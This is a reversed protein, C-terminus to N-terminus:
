RAARRQQNPMHLNAGIKKYVQRRSWFQNKLFNCRSDWFDFAVADTKGEAPRQIRGIEQQVAGQARKPAALFLRDLHPLDLGERALQTALLIDIQKSTARKMVETRSKKSMRGTLLEIRLEPLADKLMTQLTELHEVRESLVLSYHATAHQKVTDVILQNRSEDKTLADLLKSYEDEYSNFTTEIIEVSPIVTPVQSQEIQYLIPGGAAILMPTLGDRRVPTASMWLRYKAPFQNVVEFFQKGPMRHAEDIVLCGFRGVIDSLDRRSLTQVLGVTLRDGITFKGDGIYGIEEETMGLVQVARSRFQDALEKTHVLVLTPQQIYAVAALAMNTKGSGCPSVIGGQTARIFTKVPDKQYTRLDIRLDFHVPPLTLRQDIVHVQIGKLRERLQNGYGRHLIMKGHEYRYLAKFEPKGFTSRGQRVAEEYEPNRLTLDSEILRRIDEPLGDTTLEIDNSITMEVM